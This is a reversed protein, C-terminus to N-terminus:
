RKYKKSKKGITIHFEHGQLKPKLGYSKRLEELEPADVQLIIYSNKNKGQVVVLDNLSFSYRKGVERLKVRENAYVVSIHAGPADKRRFYPPKQYGPDAHLKPFLDHIYADDVKIYAYGDANQVLVGDKPLRQEAYSAVEAFPKELMPRDKIEPISQCANFLFAIFIVLFLPLKALMFLGKM